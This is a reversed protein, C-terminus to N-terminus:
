RSDVKYRFEFWPVKFYIICAINNSSRVIMSRNWISYRPILFGFYDKQSFVSSASLSLSLVHASSVHAVSERNIKTKVEKHFAFHRCNNSALTYLLSAFSFRIVRSVWTFGARFTDFITFFIDFIYSFNAGGQIPHQDMAPNGGATLESNGM